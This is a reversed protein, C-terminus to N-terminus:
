RSARMREVCRAHMEGRMEEASCFHRRGHGPLVWHVSMRSLRQMSEIPARRSCQTAGAGSPTRPRAPRERPVGHLIELGSEEDLVVRVVHLRRELREGVIAERIVDHHDVVAHRGEVVGIPM